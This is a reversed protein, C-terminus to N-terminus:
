GGCHAHGRVSEARGRVSASAGARYRRDFEALAACAQGAQNTEALARALKVTADSAWTTHPWGKLANAYAPVADGYAQRASQSEGLWYYATPAQPSDGYQGVYAQFAASAGPYDGHDLLAKAHRYVEAPTAPPPPPPAPAVADAGPAPGAPEGSVSATGPASPGPASPGPASPGPAGPGSAPPPVAAAGGAELRAVRDTLDKLQGRLEGNEDRVSSAAQRAEDSDHQLVEIQGNIQRLTNDMADLRAGLATVAPDPGAPRVEVPQGTDRGQFVISRLEHLEKELRDLRRSDDPPGFASQAFAPQRFAWGGTAIM